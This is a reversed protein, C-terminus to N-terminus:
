MELAVAGGLGAVARALAAGARALPFRAGVAFHLRGAVLEAAALELQAADPGVYVSAIRIGREPEPPDSTITALRGGDRV